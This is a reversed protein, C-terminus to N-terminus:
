PIVVEDFRKIRPAVYDPQDIDLTGAERQAMLSMALEAADMRLDTWSELDFIEPTYKEFNARIDAPLDDYGSIHQGYARVMTRGPSQGLKLYPAWSILNQMHIEAPVHTKTEDLADRADASFVLMSDWYVTEGSSYVGWEEPQLSNPVTLRTLTPVYVRDGIMTINLPDPAFSDAGEGLGPGYQRPVPGLVFHPLKITEGTLPNEWEDIAENTDFKSYYAVERHTVNFVGNEDPSWEQIIYNNMTFFPILNGDGAYGFIHFKMFAHREAEETSGMIRAILNSRKIPDDLINALEARKEELEAPSLPEPAQQCSALALSAAALLGIGRTKRFFGGIRNSM